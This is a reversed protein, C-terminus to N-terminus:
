SAESSLCPEEIAISVSLSSCWSSLPSLAQSGWGAHGASGWVRVGVEMGVWQCGVGMKPQWPVLRSLCILCGCVKSTSRGEKRQIQHREPRGERCGNTDDTYRSWLSLSLTHTVRQLGTSLICYSWLRMDRRVMVVASHLSFCAFLM